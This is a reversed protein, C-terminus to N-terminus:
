IRDYIVGDVNFDLFVANTHGNIFDGLAPAHNPDYLGFSVVNDGPDTRNPDYIWGVLQGEPTEEFGLEKYVTNLFLHGDTELLKQCYIQAGRILDLNYSVNNKWLPNWEDFCRAYISYGEVKGEENKPKALVLGNEDRTEGKIQKVDHYVELEKDTGFAERVRERYKRFATDLTGYATILTTVRKRMITHSGVISVISATGLVIAPAYLKALKLGTQVYITTLDKVRTENDYSALGAANRETAEHVDDLRDKAEELVDQAKITAKCAFVSATVGLVIGTAIFIEPANKQAKFMAKKAIRNFTKNLGIVKM